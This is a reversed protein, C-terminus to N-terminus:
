SIKWKYPSCNCSIYYSVDFNNSWYYSKKKNTKKSESNSKKM